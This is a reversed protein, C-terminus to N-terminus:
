STSQGLNRAKEEMKKAHIRLCLRKGVMINKHDYRRKQPRRTGGGKEELFFKKARMNKTTHDKYTQVTTSYPSACCEGM